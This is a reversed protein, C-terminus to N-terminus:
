KLVYEMTDLGDLGSSFFLKNCGCTNEMLVEGGCGVFFVRVCAFFFVFYSHSDTDQARATKLPCSAQPDHDTTTCM